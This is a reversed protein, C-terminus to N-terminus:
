NLVRTKKKKWKLYIKHDTDIKKKPSNKGM